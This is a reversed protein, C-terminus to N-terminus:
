LLENIKQILMDRDWLVIDNVEALERASDTFYNNIIVLGQDCDYFKLGAVVEQVATNTVKSSYRKTQIGIKRGDKEALVDIGQDGSGKTVNSSFGMKSFLMAIFDEFAHGNMLDIDSITYKEKSNDNNNMIRNEFDILKKEELRTLIKEIVITNYSVFDQNTNFKCKSILYYTLKGANHIHKHNIADIDCYINIVSEVDLEDIDKFNQGLEEELINSFVYTSHTKIAHLLTYIMNEKSSLEYKIELLKCLKDLEEIFEHCENTIEQSFNLIKHNDIKYDFYELNLTGIDYLKGIMMDLCIINERKLFMNHNTQSIFNRILTNFYEEKSLRIFLNSIENNFDEKALVKNRKIKNNYSIREQRIREKTLIDKQKIITNFFEQEKISQMNFVFQKKVKNIDIDELGIYYKRDKTDVTDSAFLAVQSTSMNEKFNYDIYEIENLFISLSSDKEDNYFFEIKDQYLYLDGTSKVNNQDQSELHDINNLCCISHRERELLQQNLEKDVKQKEKIKKEEKSINENNPKNIIIEENYSDSYNKLIYTIIFIGIIPLVLLTLVGFLGIPPDPEIYEIYAFYWAALYIIFLIIKMIPSTDDFRTKFIKIDIIKKEKDM